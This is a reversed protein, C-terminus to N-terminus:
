EGWIRTNLNLQEVMHEAVTLYHYYEQMKKFDLTSRFYSVEFLDGAVSFALFMRNNVFSVYIKKGLQEPLYVPTTVYAPGLDKNEIQGFM